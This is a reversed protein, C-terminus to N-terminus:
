EYILGQSDMEKKEEATMTKRLVKVTYAGKVINKDYYMWDSLNDVNVVVKDGLKVDLPQMPENQVIGHYKGNDFVIDGIWMHEGGGDPTDFRQKIVFNSFNPNESLLAQHFDTKFTKQANEIASNMENDQNEVLVVDPEGERQVKERNNNECSSIVLSFVGILFIKKM